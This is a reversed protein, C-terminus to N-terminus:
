GRARPDSRCPVRGCPLRAARPRPRCSPVPVGHSVVLPALAPVFPAPAAVVVEALVPRQEVIGLRGLVQALDAAVGAVRAVGTIATVRAPRDAEAVVLAARQRVPGLRGGALDGSETAVLHGLGGVVLLEVDPRRERGLRRDPLVVLRDLLGAVNRGPAGGALLPTGGILGAARRTLLAPDGALGLDDRALRAPDRDAGIRRADRAARGGIGAAAAARRRRGAPGARRRWLATAVHRRRDGDTEDQRRHEDAGQHPARHRHDHQHDDDETEGGDLEVVLDG